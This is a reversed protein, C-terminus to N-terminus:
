IMISALESMELYCIDVIGYTLAKHFISLTLYYHNSRILLDRSIFSWHKSQNDVSSWRFTPPWLCCDSSRPCNRLSESTDLLDGNSSSAHVQICLVQNTQEKINEWM